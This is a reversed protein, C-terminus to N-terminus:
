RHSAVRHPALDDRVLTAVNSRVERPLQDRLIPRDFDPGGYAEISASGDAGLELLTISRAAADTQGILARPAAGLCGQSVYRVGDKYGPFYAHHHGSLHVGVGGRQLIAELERDGLYDRERGVAFPWLPVHSFVVRHRVSTGAHRRLAGDLWGKQASSMPGVFTADLSIFLTDRVRFAYDFPYGASDVFDLAPRRATWHRRYIERELTFRAGSSADHNGPTVALPLGARQLPETVHEHFAMWMAELESGALPPHLRQGAVMDGASIVLDPGLAITRKVAAEVTAAYRVSGYRENFDSLVVVRTSALSAGRALPLLGLAGLAALVHRRSLSAPGISGIASMPALIPSRTPSVPAGGAPLPMPRERIGGDVRTAEADVASHQVPRNM